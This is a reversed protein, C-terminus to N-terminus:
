VPSVAGLTTPQFCNLQPLLKIVMVFEPAPVSEVRFDEAAAMAAEDVMSTELFYASM